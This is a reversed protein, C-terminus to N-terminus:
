QHSHLPLFQAKIIVRVPKRVQVALMGEGWSIPSITRSWQTQSIKETVSREKSNCNLV